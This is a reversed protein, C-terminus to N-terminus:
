LVLCTLHTIYSDVSELTRKKRPICLSLFLVYRYPADCEDGSAPSNTSLPQQNATAPAANIGASAAVTSASSSALISSSPQQQMHQLVHSPDPPSGSPSRQGTLGGDGNSGRRKFSSCSGSSQHAHQNLQPQVISGAPVVPGSSAASISKKKGTNGFNFFRNIKSVPFDAIQSDVQRNTLSAGSRKKQSPQLANLLIQRYHESRVFRPYCDKKLLLNYVHEAAQDFTFRSPRRM